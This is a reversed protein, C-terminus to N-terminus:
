RAWGRTAPRWVGPQRFRYSGPRQVAPREVDAIGPLADPIAMFKNAYGPQRSRQKTRSRYPGHITISEKREAIRWSNPAGRRAAIEDRAAFSADAARMGRPNGADASVAFSMTAVSAFLLVPRGTVRMPAEMAQNGGRPM